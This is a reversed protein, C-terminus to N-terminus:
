YIDREEIVRNSFNAETWNVGYRAIVPQGNKIIYYPSLAASYAGSAYIYVVKTFPDYVFRAFSGAGNDFSCITVFFGGVDSSETAPKGCSTMMFVCIIMVIILIVKKM